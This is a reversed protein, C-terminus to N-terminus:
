FTVLNPYHLYTMENWEFAQEFFRISKGENLADEFDFDPYGQDSFNELMSNFDDYRQATMFQIAAKKLENREITRNRIPNYGSINNEVKRNNEANIREVEFNYENLDELYQNM